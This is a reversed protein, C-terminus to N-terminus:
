LIAPKCGLFCIMKDCFEQKLCQFVLITGILRLNHEYFDSSSVNQNMIDNFFCTVYAKM